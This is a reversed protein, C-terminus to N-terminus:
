LLYRFPIAFVGHGDARVSSFNGHRFGGGLTPSRWNTAILREFPLVVLWLKPLTSYLGV